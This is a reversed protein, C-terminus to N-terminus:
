NWTALNIFVSIFIADSKLILDEGDNLSDEKMADSSIM